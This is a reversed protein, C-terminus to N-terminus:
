RISAAVSFITSQVCRNMELFEWFFRKDIAFHADFDKAYGLQYGSNPTIITENGEKQAELSTGTLTTQISIELAEENTKSRM